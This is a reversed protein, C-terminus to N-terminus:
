STSETYAAFGVRWGVLVVLGFATIILNFPWPSGGDFLPSSRLVLGLNAAAFWALTTLRAARTASSVVGRAYVGALLAALAWGILFPGLLEAAGFPDAFPNGYHLSHGYLLLGSILAVDGAALLLTTRDLMARTRATRVATDM